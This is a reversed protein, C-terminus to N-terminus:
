ECYIMKKTMGGDLCINQGNIFGNEEATLYLCLSSVDAPCGVRGSFHQAHDQPTLADYGSTCIWGPSICNVTVNYDALSAALAHTLAVIGGKSAAYAEYGPESMLARTSAINVIRGYREKKNKRAALFDRAMLFAATLNVSLARNFEEATVELLPKNLVVGVNNILIDAPSFYSEVSDMVCEVQRNSGMDVYFYRVRCNQECLADEVSQGKSRNNDLVAVNAGLAAYTKVLALGIGSAGGTVVVTKETYFSMRSEACPMGRM